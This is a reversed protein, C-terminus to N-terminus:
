AVDTTLKKLWYKMNPSPYKDFILEMCYINIDCRNKRGGLQKVYM